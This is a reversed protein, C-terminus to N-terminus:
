VKPPQPPSIERGKRDFVRLKLGGEFKLVGGLPVRRGMFPRQADMSRYVDVYVYKNRFSVQVQAKTNSPLEQHEAHQQYLQLGIDTLPAAIYYAISSVTTTVNVGGNTPSGSLGWGTLAKGPEFSIIALIDESSSNFLHIWPEVGSLRSVVSGYFCYKDVLERYVSSSLRTDTAILAPNKLSGLVDPKEDVLAPNAEPNGLVDPEEDNSLIMGMNCLELIETATPSTSSIQAEKAKPVKEKIILGHDNDALSSQNLRSPRESHGRIDSM